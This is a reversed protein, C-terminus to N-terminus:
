TGGRIIYRPRGQIAKHIRAVYLGLIGILTFTLSQGFTLGIILSTWGPIAEGKSWVGFAHVAVLVSVIIGFGGLYIAIRLPFSSFSLIAQTAFRLMKKFPYKTEGLTRPQREYSFPIQNFGTWAVLGRLFPDAENLSIIINRVERTFIRFDGTDKPIPVGSLMNILRYFFWATFRKSFGEGHRARRLGYVVDANQRFLVHLMPILLEPPDQLDADIIAFLDAQAAQLGAFVAASHGFNRSFQLIKFSVRLKKNSRAHERLISLSKDTSGDDVFVLEVHDAPGQEIISGSVEVLRSVTIGISEEENFVPVVIAIQAM